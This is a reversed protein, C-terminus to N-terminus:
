TEDREETKKKNFVKIYMRITSDCCDVLDKIEKFSLGEKAFQTLERKQINTMERGKTLHTMLTEKDKELERNEDFLQVTNIRNQERIDAIEKEHESKLLAIEQSLKKEANM